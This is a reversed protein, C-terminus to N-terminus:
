AQLGARVLALLKRREHDTLWESLRAAAVPVIWKGVDERAIGSLRLSEKLYRRRLCLKVFALGVRAPLGVGRLEGYKLLLWTRAIDSAPDGACATMWDIVRYESGTMMINGPHFDFHCLRDKDPLAALLRIAKDKEEDSLEETWGIEEALKDKVSIIGEISKEHIENHIVALKVAMRSISRPDKRIFFFMDRGEAKKYLIGARDKCVATRLAKPMMPYEDQVRVNVRYEKLVGQLPFGERFLKLVTDGEYAYIEATNGRGLLTLANTDELVLADSEKFMSGDMQRCKM